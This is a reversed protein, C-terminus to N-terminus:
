LDLDWVVVRGKMGGVAALTGDPSVALSNPYGIDWRYQQAVTWTATDFVRVTYDNSATLLYKGSPHYAIARLHARTGSKVKRPKEGPRWVVLSAYSFGAAESADARAALRVPEVPPFAEDLVEGTLASRAVLRPTRSSESRDRPAEWAFFRDTATGSLGRVGLDWNAGLKWAPEWGGTGDPTFGRLRFGRGHEVTWAVLRDDPGTLVQANLRENGDLLQIEREDGTERDFEMRKQGAVWSVVKSDPSFTLSNPLYTRYESLCKPAATTPIDWLFPTQNLVACALARGDPAFELETVNGEASTLLQM